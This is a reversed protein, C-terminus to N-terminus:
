DRPEEPRRSKAAVLCRVRRVGELSLVTAAPRGIHGEPACLDTASAPITTSSGDPLRVALRLEGNLRRFGHAELTRDFLPHSMEVVRVPCPLVRRLYQLIDGEKVDGPRQWPVATWM